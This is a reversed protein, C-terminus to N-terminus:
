EKSIANGPNTSKRLTICPIPKRKTIRTEKKKRRGRERHEPTNTCFFPTNHSRLHIVRRRRFIDILVLYIYPVCMFYSLNLTM